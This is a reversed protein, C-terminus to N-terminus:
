PSPGSPPLWRVRSFEQGDCGGQSEATHAELVGDILIPLAQDPEFPTNHIAEPGKAPGTLAIAIDNKPQHHLDTLALAALFSSIVSVAFTKLLIATPRATEPLQGRLTNSV